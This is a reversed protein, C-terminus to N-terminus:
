RRGGWQGFELASQVILFTFHGGVALLLRGFNLKTWVAASVRTAVGALEPATDMVFFLVLTPAAWDYWNQAVEGGLLEFLWAGPYLVVAAALLRLFANRVRVSPPIPRLRM